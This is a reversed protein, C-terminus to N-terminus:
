GKIKLMLNILGIRRKRMACFFIKKSTRDGSNDFGALVVQMYPDNLISKIQEQKEKKDLNSFAIQKLAGITLGLFITSIRQRLLDECGMESSLVTLKNALIKLQDYRDKRYSKSLSIPNSIYHYFPKKIFAVKKAYQYYELVSYIDESIIERESVFRWEHRRIIDMSFLACWASLSLNWDEGSKADYSLTMPMLVRTVEEDCFVIKPPNPLRYTLVQGEPSEEVHGFCVLDASEQEALLCSQEITIPEIYDDSDFFCIYKGTANEIGTNRAMGVGANEKHIVRIRSDKKAYEDCIRPCNDPSGDDVLIIELNQYTQNIISDVCRTLYKEVNYIPVVITVLPSSM